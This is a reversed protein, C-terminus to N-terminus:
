RQTIRNSERDRIRNRIGNQFDAQLVAGVNVNTTGGPTTQVAVAVPVNVNVIEQENEDRTRIRGTQRQSGM